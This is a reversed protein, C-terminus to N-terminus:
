PPPPPKSPMTNLYKKMIKLSGSGLVLNKVPIAKRWKTKTCYSALFVLIAFHVHGLVETDHMKLGSTMGYRMYRSAMKHVLPGSGRM